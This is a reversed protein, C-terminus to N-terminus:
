RGRWRTVRSNAGLTEVEPEALALSGAGLAGLSRVVSATGNTGHIELVRTGERLRLPMTSRFGGAESAFRWEEWRGEALSGPGFAQRVVVAPEPSGGGDPVFRVSYHDADSVTVVPGESGPWDMDFVERGCEVGARRPLLWRGLAPSVPAVALPPLSWDSPVAYWEFRAHVRLAGSTSPDPSVVALAAVPYRVLASGWYRVRTLPDRPVAQSWEWVKPYRKLEERPLRTAVLDQASAPLLRAGYLPFVLMDGAPQNFEIQLGQADLKLNSPAHQLLIGVPCDFHEWQAAGQYWAVIWRERLVPVDGRIGNTLIKPGNSGYAVYRPPVAPDGAVPQFFQAVRSTSHILLAPSLHTEVVAFASAGLANTLPARTGPLPPLSADSAPEDGPHRCGTALLGLLTPVVVWRACARLRAPITRVVPM